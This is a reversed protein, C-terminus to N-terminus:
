MMRGANSLPWMSGYCASGSIMVIIKYSIGCNHWHSVEPEGKGGGARDVEGSLASANDNSSSGGLGFSSQWNHTQLPKASIICHLRVHKSKPVRSLKPLRGLGASLARQQM